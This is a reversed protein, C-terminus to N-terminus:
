SRSRQAFCENNSVRGQVKRRKGNEQLVAEVSGVNAHRKNSMAYQEEPSIVKGPPLAEKAFAISQTLWEM